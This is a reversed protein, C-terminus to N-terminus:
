KWTRSQKEFERRMEKDVMITVEKKLLMRMKKQTGVLGPVYHQLQNCMVFWGRPKKLTTPKPYRTIAEVKKPNAFITSGKM